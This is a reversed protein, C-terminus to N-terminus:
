QGGGGDGGGGGSRIALARAMKEIPMSQIIVMGPGRLVTNFLGEGGCCCMLCGGVRRVDYTVSNEFAVVSSGDALMEQGAELVRMTITGTANLFVTGDGTITNLVLGQGGCCAAGPGGALRYSFTPTHDIACLFAKSKVTVGGGHKSLDIPIIRAPFNPTLGILQDEPSNNQYKVRLLSEGAICCRACAQGCGGATHINPKLGASMHVMTGPDTSVYSNPKLSVELMQSEAGLIEWGISDSYAPPPGLLKFGAKQFPSPQTAVFMGEM